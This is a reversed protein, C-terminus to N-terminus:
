YLCMKYVGLFGAATVLMQRLEPILDQNIPRTSPTPYKLATSVVTELFFAQHQCQQGIEKNLALSNM